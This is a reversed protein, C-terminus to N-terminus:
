GRGRFILWLFGIGAAVGGVILAVTGASSGEDPQPAPLNAVQQNVGELAQDSAKQDQASMVFQSKVDPVVKTWIQWDWQSMPPNWRLVAVIYKDRPQFENGPWYTHTIGGYDQINMRGQASSINTEYVSKADQENYTPEMYLCRTEETILRYSSEGRTWGWVVHRHCTDDM